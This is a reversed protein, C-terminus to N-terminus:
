VARYGDSEKVREAQWLHRRDHANVILLGTGVTFRLVPVFPNRFRVHNLDLQEWSAMVRRAEAHSDVFDRLAVQGDGEAEPTVKKVTKFRTRVPPEMKAIYWRGFWGPRIASTGKMKPGPHAIAELMSQCYIRNTRALHDLCQWISWSRGQHPQWNMQARSVGAILRAAAEESSELQELIAGRNESIAPM